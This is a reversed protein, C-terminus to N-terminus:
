RMHQGFDKLFPVMVRILWINVLALVLGALVKGTDNYDRNRRMKILAWLVLIITPVTLSGCCFLSAIGSVQGAVALERPSYSLISARRAVCFAILGGWCALIV